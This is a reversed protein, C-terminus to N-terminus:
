HLQGHPCVFYVDIRSLQIRWGAQPSRAHHNHHTDILVVIHCHLFGTLGGAAVSPHNPETGRVGKYAYWGLLGRGEKLLTVTPGTWRPGCESTYGDGAFM